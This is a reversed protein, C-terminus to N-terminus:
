APVVQTLRPKMGIVDAMRKAFSGPKGSVAKSSVIATSSETKTLRLSQGWQQRLMLGCPRWVPHEGEKLLLVLRGRLFAAGLGRAAPAPVGLVLGRAAFRLGM